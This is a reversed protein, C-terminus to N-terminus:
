RKFEIVMASGNGTSIATRYTKDEDGNVFEVEEAPASVIEGYRQSRGIRALIYRKGGEPEPRMAVVRMFCYRYRVLPLTDFNSIFYM